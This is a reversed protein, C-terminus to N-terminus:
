LVVPNKNIINEIDSIFKKSPEVLPIIDSENIVIWDDYDGKQRLDFLREYL